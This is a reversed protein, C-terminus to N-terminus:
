RVVESSFITFQIIVKKKRKENVNYLKINKLVVEFDDSNKKKKKMSNMFYKVIEIKQIVKFDYRYKKEKEM